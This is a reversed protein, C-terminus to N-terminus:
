HGELWFYFYFCPNKLMLTTFSDGRYQDLLPQSATLHYFAFFTKVNKANQLLSSCSWLLFCFLPSIEKIWGWWAGTKCWAKLWKNSVQKAFSHMIEGGLSFLVGESAAIPPTRYLHRLRFTQLKILFLGWCLHKGTCNAFKKLASKIFFM